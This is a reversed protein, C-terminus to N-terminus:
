GSSKSSPKSGKKFTRGPRYRKLMCAEELRLPGEPIYIKFIIARWRKKVINKLAM